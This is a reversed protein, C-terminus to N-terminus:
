YTGLLKRLELGKKKKNTKKQTKKQKKKTSYIGLSVVNMNYQNRIM